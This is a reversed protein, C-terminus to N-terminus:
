LDEDDDKAASLKLEESQNDEDELIYDEDNMFVIADCNPCAVEIMDESELIDPEFCVVEGCNPCTVEIWDDMEDDEDDDDDEDDEDLDDEEYVADELDSLDEDMSDVYDSLEDQQDELLSIEEAMEKIVAVIETIVRGEGSSQDLQLGALLGDLYSVKETLRSV